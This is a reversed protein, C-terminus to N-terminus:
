VMEAEEEDNNMQYNELEENNMEENNFQDEENNYLDMNNGSFQQSQNMSQEKIIESKGDVYNNNM